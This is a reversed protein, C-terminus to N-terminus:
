QASSHYQDIFEEIVSDAQIKLHIPLHKVTITRNGGTELIRIHNIFEGDAGGGVVFPARSPDHIKSQEHAHLIITFKPYNERVQQMKKQPGHFILLNIDHGDLQNYHKKFLSEDFRIAKNQEIFMFADPDLYALVKIKRGGQEITKIPSLSDFSKLEINTVLIQKEHNRLFHNLFPLGEIFEQDGLTIIDPPFYTYSKIICRNLEAFPYTNLYDGGDIFLIDPIEKKKERVLTVIRSLGGLPPDGCHCNEVNGNLNAYFLLELAVSDKETSSTDARMDAAPFLIFIIIIVSFSASLFRFLM